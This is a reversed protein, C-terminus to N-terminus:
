SAAAAMDLLHQALTARDIGFRRVLLREARQPSLAVRDRAPVPASSDNDGHVGRLFLYEDTWSIVPMFHWMRSHDMELIFRGLAPRSVHVLGPTWQRAFAGQVLLQAGDWTLRLGKGYDLAFQRRLELLGLLPPLDTRLREVFSVAVADDDDLRFQALVAAGPRVQARLAASCLERHPGPASRVLVIQPVEAALGALDDAWPRPLDAGTLLVHTFDGCSQRRLGPLTVREFWALRADLRRPAYLWARREALDQPGSRFGGTSLLSFRTLGLIQLDDM